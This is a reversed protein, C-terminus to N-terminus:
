ADADGGCITAKAVFGGYLDIDLQKIVGSIKKGTANDLLAKSGVTEGDMLIQGTDTLRERFSDYLHQALKQPDVNLTCDTVTKINQKAAAPLQELYVSGALNTNDDYTYGTIIVDTEASATVKIKAYNVGSDTIDAGSVSVNAAPSSFQIVYEGPARKENFLESSSDSKTYHHVYVEVGTILTSQEQTHGTVKRKLPINLSQGSRAAKILVRNSRSCDATACAAFCIQQLAKRGTCVPLYGKVTLSKVKDDIEYQEPSIGASKMVDNILEEASIGDPWYGGLYNSDAMTGILDICELTVISETTTPKDLYFAGMDKREKDIWGTVKIKQRQQLLVHAGSLSLLHYKDSDTYFQVDLTNVSLEASTPDIEELISCSTLEEEGLDMILGYRIGTLKMFHYPKNTGYFTVQLAYYDEIQNECFFVASTPAFRKESISKGSDDMWSILLDNCWDYTEESFIFTIGASTHPSEFAVNMVIPTEFRGDPGSLQESWIGMFESRIDDPLFMYSGDLIHSNKELTAWKLIRDDEVLESINSFPQLQQVVSMDGDKAATTDLMEYRVSVTTDRSM